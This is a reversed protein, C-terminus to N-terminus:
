VLDLIVDDCTFRFVDLDHAELEKGVAGRLGCPPGVAAIRAEDFALPAGQGIASARLRYIGRVRFGYELSL